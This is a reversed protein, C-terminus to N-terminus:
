TGPSKRVPLIVGRSSEDGRGCTSRMRCGCTTQRNRANSLGRRRDARRRAGGARGSLRHPVAELALWRTVACLGLSASAGTATYAPHSIKALPKFNRHQLFGPLSGGWWHKRVPRPAHTGIPPQCVPFISPFPYLYPARRAAVDFALSACLHLLDPFAPAPPTTPNRHACRRWPM